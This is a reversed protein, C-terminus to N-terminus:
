SSAGPAEKVLAGDSALAAIVALVDSYLSKGQSIKSYSRVDERSEIYPAVNTLVSSLKELTVGKPLKETGPLLLKNIQEQKENLLSVLKKTGSEIDTLDCSGCVKCIEDADGSGPANPVIETDGDIAGCGVCLLHDLGCGEDEPPVPEPPRESLPPKPCPGSYGHFKFMEEGPPMLEGCVECTSRESM